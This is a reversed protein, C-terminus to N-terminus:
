SGISNVILLISRRNFIEKLWRFSCPKRFRGDFSLRDNSANGLESIKRHRFRIFSVHKSTVWDFIIKELEQKEFELLYKIQLDVLLSDVGLKFLILKWHSSRARVSVSQFSIDITRRFSMLSRSCDVFFCLRSFRWREKSTEDTPWVVNVKVRAAEERAEDEQLLAWSECFMEVSSRYDTRQASSDM